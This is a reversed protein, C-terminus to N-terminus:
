AGPADARWRIEGDERVGTRVLGAAAAVAASAAHDPHIHAIVTRVEGADLLHAVLGKAAEKAYGLGQWGTGVVWAIEAQGDRVTAQVYGALCGDTRVRLVWNWWREAPDPSGATQRAYRARLADADEPAGGTYAHLAPDALVAAMEDAYGTRLPLADLRATSFPAPDEPTTM